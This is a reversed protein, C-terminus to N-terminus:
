ELNLVRFAEAHLVGIKKGNEEAEAPLWEEFFGLMGGEVQSKHEALAKLKRDMFGTVDQQHNPDNTWGLWIDPV